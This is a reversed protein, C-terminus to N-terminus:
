TSFHAAFLRNVAGTHREYDQHFHDSTAYGLTRAMVTLEREDRPLSHTQADNAMQLKNEVDRLFVYAERLAECEEEAIFLHESLIALAKMTNKERVRPVVGGHRLQLSQTILEIERIGGAGFKVNRRRQDRLIMKQDIKGKMSRVDEVARDNFAGDYVFGCAMDLFKQGLPMNGAM